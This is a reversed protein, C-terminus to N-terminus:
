MKEISRKLLPTRRQPKWLLSPFYQITCFVKTTWRVKPTSTPLSKTCWVCSFPTKNPTTQMNSFDHFQPLSLISRCWIYANLNMFKNAITGMEISSSRLSGCLYKGHSLFHQHTKKSFWLIQTSHIFWKEGIQFLEKIIKLM